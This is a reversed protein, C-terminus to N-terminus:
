TRRVEDLIEKVEDKRRHLLRWAGRVFKVPKLVPNERILIEWEARRAAKAYYSRFDADPLLDLLARWQPYTICLLEMSPDRFARAYKDFATPVEKPNYVLFDNLLIRMSRDVSRHDIIHSLQLDNIHQSLSSFAVYQEVAFRVRFKRELRNAEPPHRHGEFYTATAVSMEEVAWFKQIDERLGFHFWDSFHFPLREMTFPNLTFYPSIMIRQRFVAEPERPLLANRAYFAMLSRDLFLFDSRVRLAYPRTARALGAKAAVIQLNANNVKPDFKIPPLPLAGESLVIRDCAQALRRAGVQLTGNLRHTPSFEFGQVDRATGSTQEFLDTGAIALIIEARPFLARWHACVTAIEALNGAYLSGQVVVSLEEGTEQLPELAPLPGASGLVARSPLLEATPGTLM